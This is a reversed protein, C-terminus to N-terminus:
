SVSPMEVASYEHGAISMQFQGVTVHKRTASKLAVPRALVIANEMGFVVCRFHAAAQRAFPKDILVSLWMSIREGFHGIGDLLGRRIIAMM